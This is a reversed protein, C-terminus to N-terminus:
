LATKVAPGNTESSVGGPGQAKVHVTYTRNPSLGFITASTGPTSSSRVLKDQYTVRIPYLTAGPSKSWAITISTATVKTSHVGTPMPPPGTKATSPPATTTTAPPTTTQIPGGPQTSGNGPSTTLGSGGGSGAAGSASTSSGSTLLEDLEQQLADLQAQNAYSSASASASASTPANKAAQKSRWYFYAVAALLIAGGTILATKPKMGLIKKGGAAPAPSAV